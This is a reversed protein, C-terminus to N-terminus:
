HQWTHLRMARYRHEWDITQRVPENRKLEDHFPLRDELVLLVDGQHMVYDAVPYETGRLRLTGRDACQGGGGPILLLDRCIVATRGEHLAITALVTEAEQQYSDIRYLPNM